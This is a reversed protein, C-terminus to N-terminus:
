LSRKILKLMEELTDAVRRQEKLRMLAIARDPQVDVENEMITSLEYIIEDLPNM